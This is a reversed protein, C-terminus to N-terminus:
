KADGILKKVADYAMADSLNTDVEGGFKLYRVLKGDSGYVFLDDKYGGHRSWANVAAVDQFVPYESSKTLEAQTDEAGVINVVVVVVDRGAAKLEKHM